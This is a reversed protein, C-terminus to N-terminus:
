CAKPAFLVACVIVSIWVIIRILTRKVREKDM